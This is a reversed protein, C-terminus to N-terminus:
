HQDSGDVRAPRGDAPGDLGRYLRPGPKDGDCWRRPPLEWNPTKRDILLECTNVRVACRREICLCGTGPFDGDLTGPIMADVGWMGEPERETGCIYPHYGWVPICDADVSCEPARPSVDSQSAVDGETAAPAHLEPVEPASTAARPDFRVEPPTPSPQEGHGACAALLGAWSSARLKTIPKM